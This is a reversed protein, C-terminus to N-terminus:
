QSINSGMRERIECLFSRSVRAASNRASIAARSSWIGYSMEKECILSINISMISSPDIGFSYDFVMDVEKVLVVLRFVRSLYSCWYIREFKRM